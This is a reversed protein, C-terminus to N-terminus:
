GCPRKHLHRLNACLCGFYEGANILIIRRGMTYEPGKTDQRQQCAGGNCPYGLSQEKFLNLMDKNLIINKELYIYYKM